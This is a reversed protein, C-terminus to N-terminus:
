PTHTGRAVFHRRQMCAGLLLASHVQEGTTKELVGGPLRFDFKSLYRNGRLWVLLKLVTYSFRPGLEHNQTGLVVLLIAHNRLVVLLIAYNRPRQVAAPHRFFNQPKQWESVSGKQCSPGTKETCQKNLAGLFFPDFGM